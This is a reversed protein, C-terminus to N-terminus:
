ASLEVVTSTGDMFTFATRHWGNENYTHEDVGNFKRSQECMIHYEDIADQWDPYYEVIRDSPNIEVDGRTYSTMKLTPM